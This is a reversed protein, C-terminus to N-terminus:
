VLIKKPIFMRGAGEVGSTGRTFHDDRNHFKKIDLIRNCQEQTKFARHLGTTADPFLEVVFTVSENGAASDVETKTISITTIPNLTTRKIMKAKFILVKTLGRPGEEIGLM